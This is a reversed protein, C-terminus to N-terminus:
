TAIRKGKRKLEQYQIDDLWFALEFMLAVLVAAEAERAM